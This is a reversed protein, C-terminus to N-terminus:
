KIRRFLRRVFANGENVGALNQITQEAAQTATTAVANPDMPQEVQAQQVQQPQQVQQTNVTQPEVRAQNYNVDGVQPAVPQQPAEIQQQPVTQTNVVPAVQTPQVPTGQNNRVINANDPYIGAQELIKRALTM